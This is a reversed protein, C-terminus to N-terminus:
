SKSNYVEEKLVALLPIDRYRQRYDLGCGVVFEDPIEFAWKHILAKKVQRNPKNLLACVLLSAPERLQALSGTFNLTRQTDAIDEYIVFHEGELNEDFDMLLKVTGSSKTGDGYSSVSNFTIKCPVRIAKVLRSMTDYAGKLIGGVLLEEIGNEECHQSVYQGLAVIGRQIDLPYLVVSEIDPIYAEKVGLSRLEDETVEIGVRHLDDPRIVYPITFERRKIIRLHKNAM